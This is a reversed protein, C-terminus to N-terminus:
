RRNSSGRPLTALRESQRRLIPFMVVAVGINSIVVFVELLAALEIRTDHGPGLIYRHDHLVPHYILLAAISTPFTIAMFWGAWSAARKEGPTPLRASAAHEGRAQDAGTVGM